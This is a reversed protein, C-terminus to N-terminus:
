KAMDLSGASAGVQTRTKKKHHQKCHQKQSSQYQLLIM